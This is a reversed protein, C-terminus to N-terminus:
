AMVVYAMVVYAMVLYAMVVYAMLVYAMVVYAVVIYAMVVYAVVISAMLHQWFQHGHLVAGLHGVYGSNQHWFRRDIKKQVSGHVAPMARCWPIPAPM